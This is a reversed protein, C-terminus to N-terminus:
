EADIIFKYFLGAVILLFRIRMIALRHLHRCKLGSCCVAMSERIATKSDRKVARIKRTLRGAM